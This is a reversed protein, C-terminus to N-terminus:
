SNEEYKQTKRKKFIYIYIYIKPSHVPSKKWPDGAIANLLYPYFNEQFHMYCRTFDADIEALRAELPKMLNDQFEELQKMSGEYMELKGCLDTSTTELENVQNMLSQNQSRLSSSSAGLDSLEHDKEAIISELSTVKLKLSGCEQVFLGNHEKASAVEGRLSGEIAELSSVRARLRAVEMSEVKEQLLQSRLDEIEKDKVQLLNDKEEVLSKWRMKELINYEARM